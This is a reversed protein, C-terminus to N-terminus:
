AVNTLQRDRRGIMNVELFVYLVLVITLLVVLGPDVQRKREKTEESM